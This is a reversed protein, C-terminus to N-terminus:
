WPLYTALIINKESYPSYFYIGGHSGYWRPIWVGSALPPSIILSSWHLRFYSQTEVYILISSVCKTDMSWQGVPFHSFIKELIGDELIGPSWLGNRDM